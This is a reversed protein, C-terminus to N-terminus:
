AFMQYDGVSVDSCPMDGVKQALRRTPFVPRSLTQSEITCTLVRHWLPLSQSLKTSKMQQEDIEQRRFNEHFRKNARKEKMKGM